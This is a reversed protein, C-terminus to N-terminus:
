IRTEQRGQGEKGPEKVSKASAEVTTEKVFRRALVALNQCEEPTPHLRAFKVLDCREMFDRLLAQQGATLEPSRGMVELFEVTTQEPAPFHFRLELYKRLVDSLLLHFREVDRETSLPLAQIREFERMAWQEPPLSAERQSRRRLLEGIGLILGVFLLSPGIWCWRARWSPSPPVEEPKVNDDRLESLDPGLIETTVRVSIPQWTVEQWRKAGPNGRFRLPALQLSMDDAAKLANLSFTQLWRIRGGPLPLRQPDSRERVEWDAGSTPTQISQVELTSPGEVSVTLILEDSLRIEVRGAEIKAARIRVLATGHKQQYEAARVFGPLILWLTCLCWLSFVLSFARFRTADEEKDRHERPARHNLQIM